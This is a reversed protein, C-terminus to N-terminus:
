DVIEIDKIWATRIWWGSFTDWSYSNSIALTDQPYGFPVYVCEENAIEMVEIMMETRTVSDTETKISALLSDVTENSYAALNPGVEINDSLLLPEIAQSYDPYDLSWSALFLDYDRYGDEDKIYGYGYSISDSPTNDIIEVNINLEALMSQILVCFNHDTEPNMWYFITTDFGDPYDSAALYEKAMELDYEYLEMEEAADTWLDANETLSSYSVYYPSPEEVYTTIQSTLIQYGDLAYAIAKRVNVDDYPARQTNFTLMYVATGEGTQVSFTDLTSVSDALSSDPAIYMDVQGNQMALQIASSDEMLTITVDKIDPEDGWYYENYTLTTQVGVEWEVLEYAGSGILGAEATGFADAGVSEYHAKSFVQGCATAMVYKFDPQADYLTITLELDGTQEVSEINSMLSATDAATDPDMYHEISFVADEATLQTGDSFYIDDRITYVYTVDDVQEYSAINDIVEGSEDLTVLSDCINNVVHFTGFDMNHAPDLSAQEEGNAIVISDSEAAISAIGSTSTSESSAESSDDSSSDSSSSGCGALLAGGMICVLLISLLRKKM